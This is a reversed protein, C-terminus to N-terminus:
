SNKPYDLLPHLQPIYLDCTQSIKKVVALGVGSAEVKNRLQLVGFMQFIKERDKGEIGPGNDSVCFKLFEHEEEASIRIEGEAKDM